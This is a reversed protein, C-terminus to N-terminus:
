ARYRRWFDVFLVGIIGVLLGLGGGLALGDMKAIVPKKSDDIRNFVKQGFETFAYNDDLRNEKICDIFFKIDAGAVFAKGTSELIIAKTEPDSEAQAFAEDLQRVVTGNLANMADPRSIIVRGVDGDRTYQVYRIEWPSDKKKQQALTDPMKVSPWAKLLEAVLDYAKEISVKNMMEFPGIRWRLGVKAGLDIDAVDSVGEDLMSSAVYFVVAKLRDAVKQLRDDQVEGELPWLKGSDAQEKLRTPPAYLPGVAEGLTASSHLAIPVGTVNILKFPGMGIGFADMAAKDITPINAVGEEFIRIAEVYWPIFFRNVAFGPADNVLIDTKGTLTSYQKCAATTEKSTGAGPIIELLRNKAPHYFFHLGAFRDPRKTAKALEDVSFSSTNTALITKPECVEDLRKFLDKKVAMDEFVAEIVLDCDKVESLDTTGHIRGLIEEVKEPKLIKREVAEDLTARINSLGRAVFEPKIDVLVVSLGEQATKQAIGGGMNGAGIIGIKKM